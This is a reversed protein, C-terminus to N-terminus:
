GVMIKGEPYRHYGKNYNQMKAISFALTLPGLRGVFMTLTIVIRGITTLNGTIGRSLGVTGFASFVEFVIDLFENEMKAESVLLVLIVATILVAGIVIVSIAKFIQKTPIRRGGFEVDDKGLLHQAVAIMVVGITTTKVGGATSGPAGGIFMLIMVVFTTAYTLSATDITNFGATRPTVSLFGSAMFKDKWTLTGITEPNNFELVLVILFSFLIFGFTLVLVLQTHLQFKKFSKKNVIDVIVYFGLGGLVLLTMITFNIVPNDAYDILSNGLLDFGANCFASISHFISFWLGQSVGFDRVFVISLFVVGITELCITVLLVRKTLLVIGQLTSVNMEEQMLLRDKLTIKKGLMFAILTAMTMIGLGGAQILLLIVIQGFLSWYTSTNVVTLGTVCVASASTFLADVVGISNGDASAIPLNLLMTGVAILMAFSLLLFYSPNM